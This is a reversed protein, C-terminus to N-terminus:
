YVFANAGLSLGAGFGVLCILDGHKIIGDRICEDLGIPITASSSNGYKHINVYVKEMPVGLKKAAAEIIRLNAQHPIILNLDRPTAGIRECAKIVAHPMMRTAFKYVERGHMYLANYFPPEVIQRSDAANEPGFPLPRRTKAAYLYPMGDTDCALHSGFPKDSGTVVLAGAGDGFLVCTSRDGYNTLQSLREAGVILIHKMGDGHLYHRAIDLAYTIGACAVSLDMCPAERIGLERQILCALSPTHYEGTVTTVLTMDVEGPEIGAAELAQRAAQAGMYWVPDELSIHREKMGTRTSIWEDSTDIFATFDENSVTFDPVYHGTGLIEIGAMIIEL